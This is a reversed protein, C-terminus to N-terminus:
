IAKYLEKLHPTGVLLLHRSKKKNNNVANAKTRSQKRKHLTLRTHASASGPNKTVKREAEMHGFRLVALVVPFYDFGLFSLSECYFVLFFM